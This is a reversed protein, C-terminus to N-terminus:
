QHHHSQHHKQQHHKAQHKQHHKTAQKSALDIAQNSSQEIAQCISQKLVNASMQSLIVDAFFQKDTAQKTTLYHFFANLMQMNSPALTLISLQNNCFRCLCYLSTHNQHKIYIYHSCKSLNQLTQSQCYTVAQYQSPNAQCPNETPPKAQERHKPKTETTLKHM